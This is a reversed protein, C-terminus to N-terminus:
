RFKPGSTWVVLSKRTGSTVPTIRHLVYSPFCIVAGRQKPAIDIKNGAHLQLEGREYDSPDTLQVSFSLKRRAIRSSQDVHWDYHGGEPGRYVAYQFEESFGTLDFQYVQANVGVAIKEMREYLWKTDTNRGVWATQSIRIGGDVGVRQADGVPATSPELRDGYQEIADLEAPTFADALAVFPLTPPLHPPTQM